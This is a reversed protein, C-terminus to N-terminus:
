CGQDEQPQRGAGRPGERNGPDPRRFEPQSEQRDCGRGGVVATRAGRPHLVSQGAGISYAGLRDRAVGCSAGAARRARGLPLTGAIAVIAALSLWLVLTAVLPTFAIGYQM